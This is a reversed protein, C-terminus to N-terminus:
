ETKSDAAAAAKEAKAAPKKKAPKETNETKETATEVSEPVATDVSEAASEVSEAAPETDDAPKHMNDIIFQAAKRHRINNVVNTLQGNERLIKVIQKPPTRYTASMYAIEYNVDEVEARLNEARAVADLLVDIRVAKTAAERYSERLAELDTGSIALYQDLQMGRANLNVELENVLQTIKEDVMVPPIDATMNAAAQAIVADQQRELERRKASAEMNRRIDAKFEDLTQFNSVKQAFADDLPPLIKHKISNIKCHFVAPQGALDKAHYDEPFTVKVDREEGIKAGVLQEEFDGIFKHSGIDLPHDKATGGDFAEGNVTGTFDLTIFDGNQVTDGEAADVLEAHHGRMHELQDLVDEDTVTTKAAEDKSDASDDTSAAEDASLNKYEGLTVEPYPTFTLTFVFPQGDQCTIVNRKMKTVPILSEDKIIEDAGRQVLIDAAEELVYGKGLHQEIVWQPPVKGKRFGPINARNSIQQCATKKAKELDAAEYEVTVEVEYNDIKKTTTKM